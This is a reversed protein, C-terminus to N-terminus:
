NLDLIKENQNYKAVMLKIYNLVYENRQKIMSSDDGDIHTNINHKINYILKNTIANGKKFEGLNYYTEIISLIFYNYPVVNNPMITICNDLVSIASDNKNEEILATALRSYNHRYNMSMNNVFSNNKLIKKWEFKNMLNDYMISSNVVGTQGDKSRMEIPVLRYALGELQFYDSLGYFSETGVTLAFYIPRKWKNTSIIDYVMLQNRLIYDADLKWKIDEKEHQLIFRNTPSYIYNKGYMKSYKESKVDKILDSLKKYEETDKEVMILETRDGAIDKPTLSLPLKEADLVQERLHNIYRQTNLLSLNVVMVDTRIKYKAQVYLLPYTDNDGNVFLIANNACSNLYNKSTSITFDDYLDNILEKNAEEENQYTRLDLFSTLYENSAKLGISGVLVEFSPNRENIINYKEIALHRFKRYQDLQNSTMANKGSPLNFQKEPQAFGSNDNILNSAHTSYARGLSYLTSDQLDKKDELEKIVDIEWGRYGFFPNISYFRKSWHNKYTILHAENTSDKKLKKLKIKLYKNKKRSWFLEDKIIQEVPNIKNVVVHWGNPKKEFKIVDTIERSEPRDEISYKNFFNIVVNEYSPFGLYNVQASLAFYSIQLLLLIIVKKNM